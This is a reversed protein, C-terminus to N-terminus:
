SNDDESYNILAMLFKFEASSEYLEANYMDVEVYENGDFTM